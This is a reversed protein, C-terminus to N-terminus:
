RVYIDEDTANTETLTEENGYSPNTPTAKTDIAKTDTTKTERAKHRRAKQIDMAHVLFPFDVRGNAVSSDVQSTRKVTPRLRSVVIDPDYHLNVRYLNIGGFGSRHDCSTLGVSEWFALAKIVTDKKLGTGQVFQSLSVADCDKDWGITKRWLFCLVKWGSPLVVPMVKDLFFNPFPTSKPLVLRRASKKTPLPERPFRPNDLM